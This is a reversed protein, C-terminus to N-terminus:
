PPGYLKVAGDSFLLDAGPPPPPQNDITITYTKDGSGYWDTEAGDVTVLTRLWGIWRRADRETNGTWEPPPRVAYRAGAPANATFRPCGSVYAQVQARARGPAVIRYPGEPDHKELFCAARYLSQGPSDMAQNVIIALAALLSMFVVGASLLRWPRDSATHGGAGLIDRLFALGTVAGYTIFPLALLAGYMDPTCSLVLTALTGALLARGHVSRFAEPRGLLGAVMLPWLCGFRTTLRVLLTLPSAGALVLGTGLTALLLWAIGTRGRAPILLPSFVFLSPILVAGVLGAKHSVALLLSLTLLAGLRRHLSAPRLSEAVRLLTLLYLPLFALLFGRGTAWYNYRMFVPAFVYLFAFWAALRDSKLLHLGLRWAGYLGTVGMAVSLLYFGWDVGTHGLIQISALVLPQASSYSRPTFGLLSLPHVLWGIRHEVAVTTALDQWKYTDIGAIHSFPIVMVAFLLLCALRADPGAVREGAPRPRIWATALLALLALALHAVNLSRSTIPHGTLHLLLPVGMNLLVMAPGWLSLTTAPDNDRNFLRTLLWPTLVFALLLAGIYHLTM